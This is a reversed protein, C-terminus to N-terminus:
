ASFYQVTVTEGHHTLAANIRDITARRVQGTRENIVDAMMGRGGLEFILFSDESNFLNAPNRSANSM